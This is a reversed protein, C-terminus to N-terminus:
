LLIESAAIFLSDMDAGSLGIAAAAANLFPSNRRWETTKNLAVDALLRETDDPIAAIYDLVLQWLGAQILAATGQAASVSEPVPIPAPTVDEIQWEGDRYFAGQTGADYAPCDAKAVGMWSAPVDTHIHEGTNPSYLNRM